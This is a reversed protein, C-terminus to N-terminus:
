SAQQWAALLFGVILLALLAGAFAGFHAAPITPRTKFEGNIVRSHAPANAPRKRTVDTPTTM